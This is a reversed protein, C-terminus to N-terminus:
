YDPFGDSGGAGSLRVVATRVQWCTIGVSRPQLVLLAAYFKRMVDFSEASDHGDGPRLASM